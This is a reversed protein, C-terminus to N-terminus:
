EEGDDGMAPMPPMSVKPGKGMGGPGSNAARRDPMPKVLKLPAKEGHPHFHSYGSDPNENEKAV